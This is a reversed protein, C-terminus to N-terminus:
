GQAKAEAIAQQKIVSRNVMKRWVFELPGQNNSRKYLYAISLQLAMVAVSLMAYDILSFTDMWHQFFVQLLLTVIVSQMIYFTLAMEGVRRIATVLIGTKEHIKSKVVFHWIVLAMTFGSLSGLVGAVLRWYESYFVALVADIISVVVTVIMLKILTNKEFGTKLTGAKFLGIGIMMSGCFLFMTLIPFTIVFALAVFTNELWDSFYGSKAVELAQIYSESDRTPLPEASMALFTGLLFIVFGISFWTKGKKILSDADRDLSNLLVAGSLAYLMLIDGFWIFVAHILGFLFLWKMRSKLIAKPDLGQNQYSQYQLYLGIGFLLCFLSRFRGDFFLANAGRVVSDSWPEPIMPLYMGFEAVGMVPANMLLLGLVAIGRLFDLYTLRTSSGVTNLSVSGNM